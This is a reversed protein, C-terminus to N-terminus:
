QFQIVNIAIKQFNVYSYNQVKLDSFIAHM